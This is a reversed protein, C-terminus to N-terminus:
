IDAIIAALADLHMSSEAIGLEVLKARITDRANAIRLYKAEITEAM